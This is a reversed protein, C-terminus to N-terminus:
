RLLTISGKRVSSEGNKFVIEASYFYVGAACEQENSRGGWGTNIDSTQFLLNGWRNYIRFVMERIDKGRVYVVDNVGDGNPSFVNAIFVPFGGCTTDVYVTV